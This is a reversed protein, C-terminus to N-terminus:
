GGSFHSLMVKLEADVPEHETNEVGEVYELLNKGYDRIAAIDQISGRWTLGNHLTITIQALERITAQDEELTEVNIAWNESTSRITAETHDNNAPSTLTGKQRTVVRLHKM